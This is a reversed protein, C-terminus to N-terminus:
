EVTVSKALNKPQDIPCGRLLAIHYAFLQLAVTSSIVSTHQPSSPVSIAHDVYSEAEEDGETIIGIVKANRAKCEAINSLTKERGQGENVIAVVPMREDLLAIPGHKLEAAHYAEAHIYSVEKLKLAGELAVPYHYGRGIFFMSEYDIYQEAIEKIKENKHIVEETLSPIRQIEKVLRRGEEMSMRRSRAFKLAIMLLATVQSTFAKTSAVSIEPGAYLYIGRNTERAITSGVVNILGAVITGKELAERVAALTDATEGSQSLALVLDGSGIIPNRYRFEAAQEVEVPISSFNEIAYKAVLGANLSTGCGVIIIRKINAMDQPYFNLGSLIATGREKSLRGSITNELSEPQEYIEKLMYHDFEGIEASTEDHIITSVPRSVKSSGFTRIDIKNRDVLAVDNDVLYIVNKTHRVIASSDSAVLTEENNVGIVIPSGRRAVGLVGPKDKAICVIGFTGEVEELARSIAEILHGKYYYDVLNVLAESDTSSKFKYGKGELFKRLKIHNEIIGNHVLAIGKRDSLHPHANLSNPSGHTAWRTHAIGCGSDSVAGVKALIESLKSVKGETKKIMIAGNDHCAIGASDYGRYELRRLGSTLISIPDKKGSYAIIGCM